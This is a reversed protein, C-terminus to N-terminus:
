QPEKVTEATPGLAPKIPQKDVQEVQQQVVPQKASELSKNLEEVPEQSVDVEATEKETVPQEPSHYLDGKIGCASLFLSAVFTLLHTKIKLKPLLYHLRKTCM